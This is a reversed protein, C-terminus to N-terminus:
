DNALNIHSLHGTLKPCDKPFNGDNCLVCDFHVASTHCIEMHTLNIKLPVHGSGSKPYVPNTSLPNVCICHYGRGQPHPTCSFVPIQFYTATAAVEVQTAWTGQVKMKCVHSEVTGEWVLPQFVHPNLLVFNSLHHRLEQDYCQDHYIIYSLAHFFCNGDGLMLKRKRGNLALFDDLNNASAASCKM